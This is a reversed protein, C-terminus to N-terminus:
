CGGPYSLPMDFENLGFNFEHEKKGGGFKKREWFVVVM